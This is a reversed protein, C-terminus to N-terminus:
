YVLGMAAISSFIVLAIAFIFSCLVGANLVAIKSWGREPLVLLRWSLRIAKRNKFFLVCGAIVFAFSALSVLAAAWFVGAAAFLSYFVSVANNLIHIVITDAINGTRTYIYGLAIGLALAPILQMMNGHYLGFMLASVVVAFLQGYRLLRSILIKRFFWEELIPAAVVMAAVVLVNFVPEKPSLYEAASGLYFGNPSISSLFSIIGNSALATLWGLFYCVMFLVFVKQFSFDVPPRPLAPVKRAVFAALPIGVGYVVTFQIAFVGEMGMRPFIRYFVLVLGSTGIQIVALLVLYAFGLRSLNRRELKENVTLEM